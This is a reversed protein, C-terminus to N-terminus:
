WCGAAQKFLEGSEMGRDILDDANWEPDYATHLEQLLDAIERWVIRRDAPHCPLEARIDEVWVQVGKIYDIANVTKGYRTALARQLATLATTYQKTARLDLQWKGNNDTKQCAFLSAKEQNRQLRFLLSQVAPPIDEDANKFAVPAADLVGQLLDCCLLQRRVAKSMNM